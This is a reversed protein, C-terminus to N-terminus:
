PPQIPVPEDASRQAAERELQVREEEDRRAFEAAFWEAGVRAASRHAYALLAREMREEELDAGPSVPTDDLRWAVFRDGEDRMPGKDADPERIKRRRAIGASASGAPKPTNSAWQRGPRSAATVIM